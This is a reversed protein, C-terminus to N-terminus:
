QVLSIFSQDHPSILLFFDLNCSLILLSLTFSPPLLLSRSLPICLLLISNFMALLSQLFLLILSPITSIILLFHQKLAHAQTLSHFLCVFFSQVLSSSKPFKLTKSPSPPSRSLPSLSTLLIVNVSSSLLLSNPLFHIFVPHAPALVISLSPSTHSLSIPLSLFKSFM